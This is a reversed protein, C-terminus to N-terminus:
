ASDLSQWMMLTSLRQMQPPARLRFRQLALLPKSRRAKISKSLRVLQRCEHGLMPSIALTLMSKPTNEKRRASVIVVGSRGLYDRVWVVQMSSRSFVSCYGIGVQHSKLRAGGLVQGTMDTLRRMLDATDVGYSLLGGVEVIRGRAKAAALGAITRPSIM